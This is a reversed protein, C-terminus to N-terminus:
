SGSNFGAQMYDYNSLDIKKGCPEVKVLYQKSFNTLSNEKSAPGIKLKGCNDSSMYYLMQEKNISYIEWISPSITLSFSIEFLSLM